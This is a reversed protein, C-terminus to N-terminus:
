EVKGDSLAKVLLDSVGLESAWKKLYDVDLNEDQIKIVGLIDLWQRESTENGIKYWELKALIIDEAPCLYIQVSNTDEDLFDKKRREFATNHYQNDKLIYVDVKMATELHILNFSSKSNIADRIMEADIYFLSKLRDVLLNIHM